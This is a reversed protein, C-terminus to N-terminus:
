PRWLPPSADRPECAPATYFAPPGDQAAALRSQGGHRSQRGGRDALAVARGLRKLADVQLQALALEQPEQPGVAGALRREHLDGAAERPGGRALDPDAPRRGPRRVRPALEPVQGLQEPEGAPGRRRLQELEM